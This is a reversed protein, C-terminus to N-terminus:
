GRCYQKMCSLQHSSYNSASAV